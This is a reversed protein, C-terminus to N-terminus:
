TKTAAENKAGPRASMKGPSGINECGRRSVSQCNVWAPGELSTRLSAGEGEVITVQEVFAMECRRRSRKMKRGPSLGASEGNGV